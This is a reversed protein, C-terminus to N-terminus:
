GKLNLNGSLTYKFGVCTYHFLQFKCSSNDCVIMCKSIREQYLCYVNREDSESNMVNLKHTMTKPLVCTIYFATPKKM